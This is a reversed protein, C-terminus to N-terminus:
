KDATVLEGTEVSFVPYPATGDEFWDHGFCYVKPFGNIKAYEQYHDFAVTNKEPKYYNMLYGAGPACPSCYQAYTYYPSKIIMIDFDNVNQECKYGDGNYIFLCPEAEIFDDSEEDGDGGNDFIPESSDCWAQLIEGQHIVGFHIGNDPDFNSKGLSYDIGAYNTM